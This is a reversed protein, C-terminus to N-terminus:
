EVENMLLQRGYWGVTSGISAPTDYSPFKWKKAQRDDLDSLEVHIKDGRVKVEVGLGGGTERNVLNGFATDRQGHVGGPKGHVQTKLSSYVLIAQAVDESFKRSANYVISDFGVNLDGHYSVAVRESAAKDLKRMFGSGNSPHSEDGNNWQISLGNKEVATVKGKGHWPHHVIDGKKFQDATTALKALLAKRERSGVPFSAAKRILESRTSM